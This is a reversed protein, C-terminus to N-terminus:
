FKDFNHHIRNKTTANFWCEAADIMWLFLSISNLSILKFILTKKILLICLYFGNSINSKNISIRKIHCLDLSADVYQIWFIFPLCLGISSKMKHIQNSHPSDLYKTVQLCNFQNTRQYFHVVSTMEMSSIKPTHTHTHTEERLISRFASYSRSYPLFLGFIWITHWTATAWKCM